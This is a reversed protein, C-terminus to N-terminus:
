QAPFLFVLVANGSVIDSHDKPVSIGFLGGGSNKVIYLVDMAVIKCHVAFSALEGSHDHVNCQKWSACSLVHFVSRGKGQYVTFRSM